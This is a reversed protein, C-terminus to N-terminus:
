RSLGPPRAVSMGLSPADAVSRNAEIASPACAAPSGTLTNRLASRKSDARIPYPPVGDRSTSAHNSMARESLAGRIKPENSCVPLVGADRM